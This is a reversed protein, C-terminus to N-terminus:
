LTLCLRRNAANSLPASVEPMSAARGGAVLFFRHRPGLCVEAWARRLTGCRVWITAALTMLMKALDFDIEEISIYGSRGRM